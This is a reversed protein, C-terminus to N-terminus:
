LINLLISSDSFYIDHICLRSCLTARVRKLIEQWVVGSISLVKCSSLHQWRVNHGSLYNIPRLHTEYATHKHHGLIEICFNIVTVLLITYFLTMALHTLHVNSCKHTIVHRVTNTSVRTVCRQVVNHRVTYSATCQVDPFGMVHKWMNEGFHKLYKWKNEIDKSLPKV